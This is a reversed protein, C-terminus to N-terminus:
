STAMPSVQPSCGCSSKTENQRHGAEEEIVALVEPGGPKTIVVRRNKM